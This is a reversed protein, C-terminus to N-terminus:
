KVLLLKQDGAMGGSRFEQWVEKATLIQGTVPTQQVVQVQEESREPRGIESLLNMRVEQLDNKLKLSMIGVDAYDKSLKDNQERLDQNEKTLRDVQSQLEPFLVPAQQSPENKLSDIMKKLNEVEIELEAKTAM